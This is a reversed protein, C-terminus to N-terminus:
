EHEFWKDYDECSCHGALAKLLEWALLLRGGDGKGEEDYAELDEYDKDNGMITYRKVEMDLVAGFHKRGEETLKVPACVGIGRVGDVYLDFDEENANIFDFFGQLTM